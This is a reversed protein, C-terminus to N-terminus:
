VRAADIFDGFASRLVTQLYAVGKTDCSFSIPSKFPRISILNTVMHTFFVQYLLFDTKDKALIHSGWLSGIM